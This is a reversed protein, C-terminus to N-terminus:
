CRDPILWGLTEGDRGVAETACASGPRSGGRQFEPDGEGNRRDIDSLPEYLTAAGGGADAICEFRSSNSERIRVSVQGEDIAGAFTVRAPRSSVRRLCVDIAPILEPLVSAWTPRAGETVGQRACGQYAVGEFLVSATYPEQVGNPLTCPQAMLTITLPGAVVRMGHEHFDREGPIGGDDGLGPRSFQAYDDLLRLEWAGEGAAVDGLAGVAQFEGEFLARQQATAPGGLATLQEAAIAAEREADTPPPANAGDGGQERQCSGLALLGALILGAVFSKSRFRGRM